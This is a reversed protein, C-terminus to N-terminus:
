GGVLISPLSYEVGMVWMGQHSVARLKTVQSM